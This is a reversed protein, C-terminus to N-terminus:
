LKSIKEIEKAGQDEPERFYRILFQSLVESYEQDLSGVQELFIESIILLLDINSNILAM